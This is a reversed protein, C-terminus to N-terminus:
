GKPVYSCCSPSPRSIAVWSRLFLLWLSFRCVRAKGLRPLCLPVSLPAGISRIRSRIGSGPNERLAACPSVYPPHTNKEILIVKDVIRQLGYGYGFVCVCPTSIRTKTKDQTHTHSTRFFFWCFCTCSPHCLNTGEIILPENWPVAFPTTSRPLLYVVTSRILRTHLSPYIYHPVPCFSMPFISKLLLHRALSRLVFLKAFGKNELPRTSPQRNRIPPFTGGAPLVSCCCVCVCM